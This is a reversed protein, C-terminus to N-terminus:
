ISLSLKFHGRHGVGIHGGRWIGVQEERNAPRCESWKGEEERDWEERTVSRTRDRKVLMWNTKGWISEKTSFQIFGRKVQIRLRYGDYGLLFSRFGKEQTM